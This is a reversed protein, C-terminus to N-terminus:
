VLQPLPKQVLDPFPCGRQSDSDSRSVLGAKEGLQLKSNDVNEGKRFWLM